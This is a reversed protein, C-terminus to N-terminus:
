GRQKFALEPHERVRGLIWNEFGQDDVSAPRGSFRRLMRQKLPSRLFRIAASEIQRIREHGVGILDATERLSKEDLFRARMVAAERKPLLQMIADVAERPDAAGEEKQILSEDPPLAMQHVSSASHLLSPPVEHTVNVSKDVRMFHATETFTHGSFIREIPMEFLDELQDRLVRGEHNKFKPIKRLLLMDSYTMLSTGLYISMEKQTLKRAKQEALLGAHYRTDKRTM